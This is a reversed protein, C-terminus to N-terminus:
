FYFSAEGSNHTAPSLMEKLFLSQGDRSPAAVSGPSSGPSSCPGQPDPTLEWSRGPVAPLHQLGNGRAPGSAGVRKSQLCTCVACSGDHAAAPCRHCSQPKVRIEPGTPCSGGMCLLPLLLETGFRGPSVTSVLAPSCLCHVCCHTQTSDCANSHLCHQAAAGHEYMEKGGCLLQVLVTDCRM